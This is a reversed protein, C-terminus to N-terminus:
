GGQEARWQEVYQKQLEAARKVDFAFDIALMLEVDIDELWSLWQQKVVWSGATQDLAYTMLAPSGGDLRIQWVSREPEPYFPEHPSSRSLLCRTVGNTATSCEDVVVESELLSWLEFLNAVIPADDQEGPYPGDFSEASLVRAGAAEVDGSSLEEAMEELFSAAAADLAPTETTPAVSTSSTATTSTQQLVTSQTPAATPPVVGTTAPPTVDQAGRAAFLVVGVVLAASFAVVAVTVRSRPSRRRDPASPIAPKTDVMTMRREVAEFAIDPSWAQAPMDAEPAYADTLSLQELLRARSM